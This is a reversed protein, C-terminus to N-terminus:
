LNFARKFTASKVSPFKEMLSKEYVSIEGPDPAGNLAILYRNASTYSAWLPAQRAMRESVQDAVRSFANSRDRESAEHGLISTSIVVAFVVAILVATLRKNGVIARQLGNLIERIRMLRVQSTQISDTRTVTRRM